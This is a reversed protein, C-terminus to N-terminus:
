QEMKVCYCNQWRIRDGCTSIIYHSMTRYEEFKSIDSETFGCKTISDYTRKEFTGMPSYYREYFDLYCKWCYEEQDKECALLMIGSLAILM